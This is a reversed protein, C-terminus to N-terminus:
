PYVPLWICVSLNGQLSYDINKGWRINDNRKSFNYAIVNTVDMVKGAIARWPSIHAKLSAPSRIQIVRTPSTQM